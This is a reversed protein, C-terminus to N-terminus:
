SAPPNHKPLPGLAGGSKTGGAPDISRRAVGGLESTLVEEFAASVDSTGSVAHAVEHLLTGAYAELSRLQDRKVVIRGEAPEWVGAAEAYSSAGLRMTKSILIEHVQSPRGGRLGLIEGTRDFIAREAKTLKAPDIFAFQFSENWQDKFRGLDVIPAGTVDVEGELKRRINDPVVVLRFGDHEARDVFDRAYNLEGPTLFIVKGTANLVQCAHVGVDVLQVEDHWAGTEFRSLDEALAGAVAESSAVLLIAKMRDTYAMRGVNNRERNLAARLQKTPSTINFSFLYNKEEAVRLGNVYIRAPRRSPRRLVAGYVTTELVEDGSYHLFLSRAEEIDADTVGHLIVETGIMQPDDPSEIMAHLTQVDAFGYKERKATTIVGYRSRLRIEVRRRDLTALADKLGVGFKGVVKEPNALKERNENQTLHEYRLGRGWDRIIWRGGADKSIEPEATDTLAAEDLANALVERLAHATTWNELVREINLDFERVAHGDQEERVSPTIARCGQALWGRFPLGRRGRIRAGLPRAGPGILLLDKGTM